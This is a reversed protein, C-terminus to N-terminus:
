PSVINTFYIGRRTEIGVLQMNGNKDIASFLNVRQGEIDDYDTVFKRVLVAFGPNCLLTFSVPQAQGRVHVIKQFRVTCFSGSVCTVGNIEAGSDINGTYIGKAADPAAFRASYTDNAMVPSAAVIFSLLTLFKYM